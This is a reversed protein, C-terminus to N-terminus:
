LCLNIFLIFWLLSVSVKLNKIEVRGAVPWNLPPRNDELIEPAESHIHMCQELREVSIIFNSLMCHMNIAYVLFENMSLAYSLAM